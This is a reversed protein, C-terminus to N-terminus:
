QAMREDLFEEEKVKNWGQVMRLPTERIHPYLIARGDLQRDRIMGLVDIANHLSGVAAVYNGPDIEGAAIAEVTKAVDGADGGSSGVVHVERYHVDRSNLELIHDGLPLGGFLNVVGDEALLALAKQHEKRIGLALIYDDAGRGRSVDMVTAELDDPSVFCLQCGIAEARGRLVKELKRLRNEEYDAVVLVGPRFRLALEAHMRGMAGAGRVVTVGGPKIGLRAERPAHPGEKLLHYHRDQASIVCSIPEAMTVAFAPMGPDPLPVLCGAALVEEQIRIYQALMGGLTYGVACKTIGEANNRYRERNLIPAVDVAPQVAYRKGLQFRDTLGDGVKVLTVAGEDGLIAPWQELDWGNIFPHESGQAILKLNSSCVGAADVRALLQNEGIQPIPVKGLKLNEFGTGTATLALMESPLQNTENM